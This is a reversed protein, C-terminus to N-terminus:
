RTNNNFNFKFNLFCLFSISSVLCFNLSFLNISFSTLLFNWLSNSMRSLSPAHLPLLSNLLWSLTECVGDLIHCFFQYAFAPLSPLSPCCTPPIFFDLCSHSPLFLQVIPCQTFLIFLMPLSCSPLCPLLIHQSLPLPPLNTAIRSPAASSNGQSYFLMKSFSLHFSSPCLNFNPTSLLSPM